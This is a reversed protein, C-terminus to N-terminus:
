ARLLPAFCLARGVGDGLHVRTHIWRRRGNGRQLSCELAFDSHQERPTAPPAAPRRPSPLQLPRQHPQPPPLISDPARKPPTVANDLGNIPEHKLNGQRERAM